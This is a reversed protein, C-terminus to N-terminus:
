EKMLQYRHVKPAATARQLAVVEEELADLADLAAQVRTLAYPKL